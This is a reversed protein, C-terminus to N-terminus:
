PVSVNIAHSIFACGFSGKIGPSFYSCLRLIGDPWCQFNFRIECSQEVRNKDISNEKLHWGTLWLEEERKGGWGEWLLLLLFFFGLCPDNLSAVTCQLAPHLGLSSSQPLPHLCLDPCWHASQFRSYDGAIHKNFLKHSLTSM